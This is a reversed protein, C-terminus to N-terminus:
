PQTNPELVSPMVVQTHAWGVHEVISFQEETIYRVGHIPTKRTYDYVM